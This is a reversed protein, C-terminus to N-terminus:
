LLIRQDQRDGRRAAGAEAGNKRAERIAARLACSGVRWKLLNLSAVAAPWNWYARDQRARMIQLGDDVLVSPPSYRSCCEPSKVQPDVGAFHQRRAHPGAGFRGRWSADLISPM